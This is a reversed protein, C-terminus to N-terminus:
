TSSEEKFSNLIYLDIFPYIFLSDDWDTPIITGLSTLKRGDIVTFQNIDDNIAFFTKVTKISEEIASDYYLAYPTNERTNYYEVQVIQVQVKDSITTNVFGISTRILNDVDSQSLNKQYSQIALKKADWLNVKYKESFFNFVSEYESVTQPREVPVLTCRRVISPDLNANTTLFLFSKDPLRKMSVLDMQTLFTTVNRTDVSTSDQTRPAMLSDAEDLLVVYSKWLVPLAGMFKAINKETDGVYSGLINQTKLVALPKGTLASTLKALSTKGTGPPGYLVIYPSPKDIRRIREDVNAYELINRIIHKARTQGIVSETTMKIGKIIDMDALVESVNEEGDPTTGIVGNSQLIKDVSLTNFYARTPDMQRLLALVGDATRPAGNIFSNRLNLVLSTVHSSYARAWELKKRIETSKGDNHEDLLSSYKVFETQAVIYDNLADEYNAKYYNTNARKLITYINREIKSIEQTTTSRSSDAFRQYPVSTKKSMKSM